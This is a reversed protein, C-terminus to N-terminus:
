EGWAAICDSLKKMDPPKILHHDFGAEKLRAGDNQYGTVAILLIKKDGQEQRLRRAVEYGDMEPLGLDLVVIEPSFSRVAALAAPGDNVALTRHGDLELLDAFNQALDAEDDVVLIRRSRVKGQEVPANASQAQPSEVDMLRPLTIIFESGQGLGGSSATVGGGHMEALRKVLPLGLGLGGKPRDLSRPAQTFVDFVHPLFTADMGIGTDRVIIRARDKDADLTVTILGDNSSYKVANTLLNEVAQTLRVADGMVPTRQAPLVLNVSHKQQDMFPKITEVAARVVDALDISEKCLTIKGSVVRANDLVQDLLTGMRTTQRIMMARLEEARTPDDQVRGLMALGHSMASLPNRLEHGLMALFENKRHDNESLDTGQQRLENELQKRDTIDMTLGLMRQPKGDARLYVSGKVWIWRLAQDTRIMRCEIEWPKGGTMADKFSREVLARDSPHIHKNLFALYGTEPDLKDYGYIQDHRLSRTARASSLDVEWQGVQTADLTFRLREEKERLEVVLDETAREARKRETVDLTIAMTRTPRSATDKVLNTTTHVWITTGDKRIMRKETEYIEGEGRTLRCYGEWHGPLDDPHTLDLFTRGVLEAAPYGLMLAFQDNVRLLRGTDADTESVGVTTSEFMARYRAESERVAQKARNEPDVDVLVDVEPRSTRHEPAGPGTARRPLHVEFTTTGQHSRAVLRGGHSLVIQHAIYLGLGLNGSPSKEHQKARRFPEFIFPIVDTPIPDGQNSVELLVAGADGHAKITVATGATAHEIANGALNSVVEVLRDQDWHGTLDGHLEMQFLAAFEETVNQCIGRLDTPAREIPLGGGLRARTLDLLQAIMRTIRQSSRNIRAATAADESDLHGRRLLLTAAMVISGVPTRLDHGLIGIFRERFEAVNRLEAESEEASAKAAEAERILEQARLTASVMRENAERQDVILSDLHTREDSLDRNTTAREQALLVDPRRRHLTREGALAEDAHAREDELIGDARTRAKDVVAGTDNSRVVDSDAHDRATRVVQDARDRAVRLVDDATGEVRQREEAIAADTKTREDRLSVDTLGRRELDTRRVGDAASFALQAIIDTPKGLM